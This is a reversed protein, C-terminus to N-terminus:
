LWGKKRFFFFLSINLVITILFSILFLLHNSGYLDDIAPVTFFSVVLIMPFTLFALINFKQVIANTKASLLQANTAELSEVTEKFNDLQQTIKLHDGVLDSLYIAIDSNWFRTGIERLSHLIIGQPKSIIRYDLINRKAYSIQELLEAEKKQFLQSAITTISEEIHVLQRQSFQLIEEILYYTMKGTGEGMAMAKFHPDNNLKRWFTNLPELEEYHVTIIKDKTILIDIEARRSTRGTLDYMPLHYTLFLYQSYPEVRSRASSHLLEDLIIPHFKHLKSIAEIDKPTPKVVDIWTLKHHKLIKM